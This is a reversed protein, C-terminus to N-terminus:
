LVNRLHPYKKKLMEDKLKGQLDKEALLEKLMQNEKELKKIKALREKTMGHDLGDAGSEKFKRKWYYFTNAYLDYKEMTLKSGLTESEKLIALKEEKTYKKTGKETIKMSM